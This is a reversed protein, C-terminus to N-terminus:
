EDLLQLVASGIFRKDNGPHTELDGIAMVRRGCWEKEWTQMGKVYYIGTSDTRVVAEGNVTVADGRITIRNQPLKDHTTRKKRMVLVAIGGAVIVFAIIYAAKSM